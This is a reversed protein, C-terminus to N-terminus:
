LIVSIDPLFMIAERDQLLDFWTGPASGSPPNQPDPGGGGSIHSYFFTKVFNLTLDSFNGGAACMKYM